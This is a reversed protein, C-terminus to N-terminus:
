EDKKSKTLNNIKDLYFLAQHQKLRIEQQLKKKEPGPMMKIEETKMAAIEDAIERLEKSLKNLDEDM